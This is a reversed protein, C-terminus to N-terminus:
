NVFLEARKDYYIKHLWIGIATGILEGIFSGGSHLQTISVGTVASVTLLYGWGLVPSLALLILLKNPAGQKFGALQFRTYIMYVAVCVLVLGYAIDVFRMAPLAQYIRDGIKGYVKGAIFTAGGLVLMVAGAWLLFYILFNHWKLPKTNETM